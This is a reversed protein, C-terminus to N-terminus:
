YAVRIKDILAMFDGEIDAEYDVIANHSLVLQLSKGETNEPRYFAVVKYANSGMSYLSSELTGDANKELRLGEKPAHELLYDNEANVVIKLTTSSASDHHFVLVETGYYAESPTSVHDLDWGSPITMMVWGDSSIEADDWDEGIPDPGPDPNPNDGEGSCGVAVLFVSLIAFHVIRKM